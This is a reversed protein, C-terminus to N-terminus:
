DRRAVDGLIWGERVLAAVERGKLGDCTGWQVDRLARRERLSARVHGVADAFLALGYAATSVVAVLLGLYGVAAGVLAWAPITQLADFFSM